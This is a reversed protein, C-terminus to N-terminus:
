HGHGGGGGGHGGGGHGGHAHGGHAAGHGGTDFPITGDFYQKGWPTSDIQEEGVMLRWILRGALFLWVVVFAGLVAPVAVWATVAVIV